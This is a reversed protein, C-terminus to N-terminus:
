LLGPHQETRRFRESIESRRKRQADNGEASSKKGHCETCIARLNAPSHDDGARIHDVETAHRGCARGPGTKVQCAHKADRLVKRRITDWNNPLRGRRGSTEWGM